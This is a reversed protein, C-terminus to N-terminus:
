KKGGKIEVAGQLKEMWETQIVRYNKASSTELVCVQYSGELVFVNLQRFLPGGEGTFEVFGQQILLGEETYFRRWRPVEPSVPPNNAFNKWAHAFLTDPKGTYPKNEYLTITFPEANLLNYNSLQVYGAQQKLSWGESVPIQLKGWNRLQATVPNGFFITFAFLVSTLMKM